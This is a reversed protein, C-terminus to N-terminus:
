KKSHRDNDIDELRTEIRVLRDRIEYLMETKNDASTAKADVSSLWFIAGVIFPLSGLAIFLPITSKDNINM